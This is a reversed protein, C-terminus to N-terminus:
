GARGACGRPPLRGHPPEEDRPGHHRDDDGDEDDEDAAGHNGPKRDRLIRVDDGGLDEHLRRVRAGVRERDLPGDGRRDLLLRVADVVHNIERRRVRVVPRERQADVELDPRVDVRVVHEDLVADRLRGGQQGRLHLRQAERHAFRDRRRKEDEREIRRVTRVALVKEAVVGGDVDVVREQTHGAEALDVGEAGRVVRHADPHKGVLQLRQPQREAIQAARDQLLARRVRATLDAGFRGRLPLLERVRDARLPPQHRRLLEAVDDDALVEVARHHPEAVDRPDLEPGLGIGLDSTVVPLRRGDDGNVLDGTRVREGHGLTRLLRHLLQLLAEGRVHRYASDRSVVRGIVAPTRSM